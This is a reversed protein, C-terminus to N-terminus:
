DSPGRVLPGLDSPGRHVAMFKAGRVRAWPGMPLKLCGSVGKLPNLDVPGRDVKDSALRHVGEDGWGGSSTM